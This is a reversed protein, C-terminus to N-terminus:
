EIPLGVLADDNRHVGISALRQGAELSLRVAGDWFATEVQVFERMTQCSLAAGYAAIGLNSFQLTARAAEHLLAHIIKPQAGPVNMMWPPAFACHAMAQAFPYAMRVEWAFRGM